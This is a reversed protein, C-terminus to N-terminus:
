WAPYFFILKWNECIYKDFLYGATPCHQRLFMDKNTILGQWQIDLLILYYIGTITSNLSPLPPLDWTLHEGMGSSGSFYFNLEDLLFIRDAM